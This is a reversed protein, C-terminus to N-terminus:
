QSTRDVVNDSTEWLKCRSHSSCTEYFGSFSDKMWCGSRARVGLERSFPPLNVRWAIIQLIHGQIARHGNGHQIIYFAAACSTKTHQLFLNGDDM